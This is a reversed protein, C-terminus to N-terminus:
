GRKNPESSPLAGIVLDLKNSIMRCSLVDLRTDHVNNTPFAILFPSVEFARRAVTFDCLEAKLFIASWVPVNSRIEETPRRNM